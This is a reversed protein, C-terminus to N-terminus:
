ILFEGKKVNETMVQELLTLWEVIVNPDGNLYITENSVLSYLKFKSIKSTYEIGVERCDFHGCYEMRKGEKLITYIISKEFFFVRGKYKKKQNLDEITFDSM